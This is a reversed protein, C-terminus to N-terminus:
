HQRFMLLHVMSRTIVVYRRMVIVTIFPIHFSVVQDLTAPVNVPPGNIKYHGGYRRMVIVTIFPIHFSVVQRKILYIDKLELPIDYVKLGNVCAQDPMRPKRSHLANRCGIGIFEDFVATTGDANDDYVLNLWQSNDNDLADVYASKQKVKMIFHHSLCKQVVENTQDHESIKFLRLLKKFYCGIAVLAFM